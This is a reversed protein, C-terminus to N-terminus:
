EVTVQESLRIGGYLPDTDLISVVVSGTDAPTTQFIMGATGWLDTTASQTVSGKSATATIVHGGLPNGYRDKITVEFPLATGAPSTSDIDLECNDRYACDTLLTIELGDSVGGAFGALATVHTVAGIGDDPSVPSADRDLVESTYEGGAVSGMVGDATTAKNTVTGFDTYFEVEEGAVVFNGNIDLVEVYFRVMSEGDATLYVPPLPSIFEVSTPPGSSILGGIGVVEGGSTSATIDVWGNDRPQGSFYTGFAMGGETISSGLQDNMEYLGRIIGEDCTFYVVTSDRVPNNYIDSVIAVIASEAGVVDWGRINLPSSGISIHVPPGAAISVMASVFAASSNARAEMQVTGSKTGSGLTVRAQGFEDTLAAVPGWGSGQLGEGGDPGAVIEFILERDRGVLQNHADLCTALVQCQEPGGTESVAIEPSSLSIEIREIPGPEVPLALVDLPVEISWDDASVTITVTGAEEPATYAITAIGSAGTTATEAITGADATFALEKGPIPNGNVDYVTLALSAQTAGDAYIEEPWWAWEARTVKPLEMLELVATGNLERTSVYLTVSGPEVGATYVVMATGGSDTVRSSTIQGSVDWVGNDNEDSFAEGATYYGDADEDVFAEGVTFRVLKGELPKDQWDLVKVTVVATSLGDALLETPSMAVSIASQQSHLTIEFDASVSDVTAKVYVTGEKTGATYVANALGSTNTRATSTVRGNADWVGEEGGDVVIEDGDSFVGDHDNDFFLEGATLTVSKNALPANRYTVKITLGLTTIGDAPLSTEAATVAINLAGGSVTGGPLVILSLYGIASGAAVRLEVRGDGDEAPRYITTLMGLLDTVGSSPYFQGFERDAAHGFEIPLGVVAQTPNDRWVVRVTIAASDGATVVVPNAALTEILYPSETTVAPGSTNESGCGGSIILVATAALVGLGTAMRILEQAKM